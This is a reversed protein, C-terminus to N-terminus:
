KKSVNNYIEYSIEEVANKNYHSHMEFHFFALPNKHDRFIEEYIDILNINLEKVIKLIEKRYYKKKKLNDNYNELYRTSSPLYVFYFTANKEDSIRKAEKLVERFLSTTNKHSFNKIKETSLSFLFERLRQLKITSIFANNSSDRMSLIERHNTNDDLGYQEIKKSIYIEYSNEIKKQKFILNQSFNKSLYKILIKSKKEEIFETLDNGEYYMWIITQTDLNKGYEKLTALELLPGNNPQALSLVGKRFFRRLNGTFNEEFNLYDGHAFSDGIILIVDDRDWDNDLNNFGYRDSKYFKYDGSESGGVYLKNSIGSLPLIKDKSILNDNEYYPIGEEPLMRFPTVLLAVDIGKKKLDKQIEIKSRTDVKQNFKELILKARNERINRNLEVIDVKKFFISILIESFFSLFLLTYTLLTINKRLEINKLFLIFIFFLVSFGLIIYYLIYAHLRKSEFVYYSKYHIYILLFSAAIILFLIFFDFIKMKKLNNTFIM